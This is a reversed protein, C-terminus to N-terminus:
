GSLAATPLAPEQKLTESTSGQELKAPKSEEALKEALQEPKPVAVGRQGTARPPEELGLGEAIGERLLWLAVADGPRKRKSSIERIKAEVGAKSYIPFKVLFLQILSPM